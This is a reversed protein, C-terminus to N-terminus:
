HNMQWRQLEQYNIRYVFLLEQGSATQVEQSVRRWRPSEDHRSNSNHSSSREREKERSLEPSRSVLREHEENIDFVQIYIGYQRRVDRLLQGTAYRDNSAQAQEWQEPFDQLAPHHNLLWYDQNFLQSLLLTAGVVLILALWLAAFVRWFLSRFIAPM